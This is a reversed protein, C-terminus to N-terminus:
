KQLFNKYKECDCDIIIKFLKKLYLFSVLIFCYSEVMYLLQKTM